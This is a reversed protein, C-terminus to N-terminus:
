RSCGGLHRRHDSQQARKGAPVNGCKDSQHRQLHHGQQGCITGSNDLAYVYLWADKGSATGLTSGSSVVLSAAATAKRVALAGSTLTSSRFPITLPAAATADAGAPTKLAITLASAGVSFTLTPVDIGLLSRAIDRSTSDTGLMEALFGRLNTLNTKQQGETTFPDTLSAAGTSLPLTFPM